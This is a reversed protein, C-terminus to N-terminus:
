GRRGVVYRWLHRSRVKQESVLNDSVAIGAEVVSERRGSVLPHWDALGRGEALRRYACSEPMWELTGANQPTVQVCDPVLKKREDYRSCRREGADFLRCAVSTELFGGEEEDELLVICCQGCGDCLSEWEEPTMEGLTKRQWFPADADSDSSM